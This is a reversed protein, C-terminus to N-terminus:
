QHYLGVHLAGFEIHTMPLTATENDTCISQSDSLPSSLLPASFSSHSSPYRPSLHLSLFDSLGFSPRHKTRTRSTSLYLPLLNNPSLPECPPSLFSIEQLFVLRCPPRKPPRYIPPTDTIVLVRVMNQNTWCLLLVALLGLHFAVSSATSV